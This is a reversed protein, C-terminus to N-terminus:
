PIEWSGAMTLAAGVEGEGNQPGADKIVGDPALYLRHDVGQGQFIWRRGAHLDSGPARRTYAMDKRLSPSVSMRELGLYVISVMLGTM